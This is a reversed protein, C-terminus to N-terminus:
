YKCAYKKNAEVTCSTSLLCADKSLLSESSFPIVFKQM